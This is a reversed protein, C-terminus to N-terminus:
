GGVVSDNGGGSVVSDNGGGGAVTDNGGSAGNATRKGYIIAQGREGRCELTYEGLIMSASADALKPLDYKKFARLVGLKLYKPDLIFTVGSLDYNLVEGTIPDTAVQAKLYRSPILEIKGFDSEYVDIRQVLKTDTMNKNITINRSYGQEIWSSLLIKHEPSVMMKTPEGGDNWTDKLAQTITDVAPGGNYTHTWILDQLGSLKRAIGTNPKVGGGQYADALHMDVTGATGMQGFKRKGGLSSLTTQFDQQQSSLNLKNNLLALELDKAIQKMAKTMQYAKESQVGVKDVTEQTDTVTFGKAFIQTYNGQRIRGQVPKPAFTFGEPQANNPNPPLLEDEPFEHYTAKVKTKGIMSTLPTDHPSMNFIADELDEKNTVENYTFTAM